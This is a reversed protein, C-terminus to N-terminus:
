KKTMLVTIYGDDTKTIPQITICHFYGSGHEQFLNVKKVLDESTKAFFYKVEEKYEKDKNIDYMIILGGTIYNLV